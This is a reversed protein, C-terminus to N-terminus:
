QHEDHEAQFTQDQGVEPSGLATALASMDVVDVKQMDRQQEGSPAVSNGLTQAAFTLDDALAEIQPALGEVDAAHLPAAENFKDYAANLRDLHGAAKLAKAKLGKIELAMEIKKRAMRYVYLRGTLRQIECNICGCQLM